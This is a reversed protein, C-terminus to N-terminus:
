RMHVPNWAITATSNGTTGTRSYTISQTGKMLEWWQNDDPIVSYNVVGNVTVIRKAVDIVINQGSPLNHNIKISRNAAAANAIRPNVSPGTITITPPAGQFTDLEDWTSASNNVSASNSAVGTLTIAVPTAATDAYVRPDTAVFQIILGDFYGRALKWDSTLQAGKTVRAMIKRIGKGPRQFTLPYETRASSPTFAAVLEDMRTEIATADRVGIKMNVKRAGLTHRGMYAGHHYGKDDDNTNANPPGLLGEVEEVTYPTGKGLLLGRFEYQYDATIAMILGEGDEAV